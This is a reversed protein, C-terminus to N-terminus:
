FGLWIPMNSFILSFLFVSKQPDIGVALVDVAMKYIEEKKEEPKYRQTLSHYDAIFYFCNYKGSNQLEVANKLAGLYNGIHLEGSPKFGSILIPKSMSLEFVLYM